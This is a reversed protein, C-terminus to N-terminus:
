AMFITSLELYAISFHFKLQKREQRRENERKVMTTSMMMMLNMGLLLLIREFMRSFEKFYTDIEDLQLFLFYFM